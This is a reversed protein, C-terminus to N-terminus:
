PTYIPPGQLVGARTLREITTHRNHVFHDHIIGNLADAIWLLQEQKSRWDYVFPVGGRQRYHDLLASRDRQNTTKDGSEIILHDINEHHLDDAIARLLQERATKQKKRAVSQYRSVAVVGEDIMVNVIRERAATGERNWHFPRVRGPTDVFLDKVAAKVSSPNMMIASTVVYYVGPGM